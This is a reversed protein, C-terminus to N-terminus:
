NVWRSDDDPEHKREFLDWEIGRPLSIDGLGLSAESLLFAPVCLWTWGAGAAFIVIGAAVWWAIAVLGRTINGHSNALGGATLFAFVCAWTM